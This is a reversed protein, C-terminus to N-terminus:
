IKIIVKFYDFRQDNESSCRITCGNECHPSRQIRASGCEESSSANVVYNNLRSQSQNTKQQAELAAESKIIGQAFDITKPFNQTLMNIQNNCKLQPYPAAAQNTQFVEQNIEPKIQHFTNKIQNVCSNLQNQSYEIAQNLHLLQMQNLSVAAAAATAAQPPAIPLIIVGSHLSNDTTTSPFCYNNTQPQTHQTQVQAQQLIAAIAPVTNQLNAEVKKSNEIIPLNDIPPPLPPHFTLPTHLGSALFISNLIFKLFSVHHHFIM